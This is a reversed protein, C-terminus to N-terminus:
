SGSADFRMRIGTFHDKMARTFRDSSNQEIAQLLNRHWRAADSPTYHDGPLRANVEAFTRWFVGLLDIILQNDLPEYLTRHFELDQEAFTEGRDAMEEMTQVIEGLRELGEGRYREIVRDAMGVELAERVDLVDRVDKL